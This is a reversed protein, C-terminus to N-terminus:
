SVSEEADRFADTWGSGPDRPPPHSPIVTNQQKQDLLVFGKAVPYHM